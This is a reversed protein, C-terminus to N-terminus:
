SSSCISNKSKKQIKFMMGQNPPKCCYHSFAYKIQSSGKTLNDLINEIKYRLQSDSQLHSYKLESNPHFSIFKSKNKDSPAVIYKTRSTLIRELTFDDESILKNKLEHCIPTKLNIIKNRRYDEQVFSFISRIIDENLKPLHYCQDHSLGLLSLYHETM